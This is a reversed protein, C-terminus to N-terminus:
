SSLESLLERLESRLERLIKATNAPVRNFGATDDPGPTELASHDTAASGRLERLLAKRAGMLTLHRSHLLDKVRLIIELDRKTYRRHGTTRRAPRLLKLRSEWYRLTYDPLQVIRSAEGINFFQQDPLLPRPLAM